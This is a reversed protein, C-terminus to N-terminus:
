LDVVNRKRQLSRITLVLTPLRHSPAVCIFMDFYINGREEFTETYSNNRLYIDYHSHNSRSNDHYYIFFILRQSKIVNCDHTLISVNYLSKCISCNLLHFSYNISYIIVTEVNNIFKYCQATCLICRHPCEFM